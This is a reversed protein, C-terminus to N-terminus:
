LYGTLWVRKSRGQYLIGALTTAADIDVAKMPALVKPAGLRIKARVWVPASNTTHWM